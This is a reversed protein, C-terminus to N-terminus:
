GEVILKADRFSYFRKGAVILHDQLRIQMLEGAAKLRRTLNQDAVSPALDGSPHNHAIVYATARHTLARAMVTRVDVICADVGGSSLRETGLVRSKNNLFIAWCEEHPLDTLHPALKAYAQPSTLCYPREFDKEMERRRGLELAAVLTVAKVRGIGHTKSLNRWDRSGLMRLLGESDHLLDRAVDCATANRTGTRLLIAILESTALTSPGYKMLRERPQEDPHWDKLTHREASLDSIEGVADATPKQEPDPATQDVVVDPEAQFAVAVVPCVAGAPAPEASKPKPKPTRKAVPMAIVEAERVPLKVVKAVSEPPPALNRALNKM